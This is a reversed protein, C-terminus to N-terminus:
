CSVRLPSNRKCWLNFVLAFALFVIHHGKYVGEVRGRIEVALVKLSSHGEAGAGEGPGGGM